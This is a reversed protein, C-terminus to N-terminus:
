KIVSTAKNDIVVHKKPLKSPERMMMMDDNIFHTKPVQSVDTSMSAAHSLVMSKTDCKNRRSDGM